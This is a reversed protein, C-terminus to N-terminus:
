VVLDIQQLTGSSGDDRLYFGTARVVGLETNAADRLSFDGRASGTFLAGVGLSRLTDLREGGSADCRWALLEAFAADGADIFGNGDDDLAALDAFGDGSRAGFLESGDDIRGNGNHDRAVFASDGSAFAIHERRGNADLDFAYRTSGLAVPATGLNILLPDQRRVEGGSAATFRTFTRQMSLDLAFALTRGDATTVEGSASFGTEESESYWQSFSFGASFQAAPQAAPPAPMGGSVTEGAPVPVCAVRVKRGSLLEVLLRLLQTDGDTVPAAPTSAPPTSVPVTAVPVAAPAVPGRAVTVTTASESRFRREGHLVLRSSTIEM